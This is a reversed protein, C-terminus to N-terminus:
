AGAFDAVVVECAIGQPTNERWRVEGGLLKVRKRVGGLGLGHSWAQPERGIGDDVVALRLCRGRMSITIDVRRAQAHGIANSTLERLVRTLSSWQVMSLVMDRDVDLTWGLEVDAAALRQGLDAKWEAAAHTLRHETRALGRTLTKLDKLTHRVYEEMEPSQAQYMLTLLRAGIDDHLDQAIRLREENRGREVAQDYALARRLQEVIREALRADDRTFLRRGRRAYLLQLAPVPEVGDAVPRLPVVMSAGGDVVRAARVPEDAARVELPDFLDRLLRQLVAVEREPHAQLERVAGYLQEFTRDADQVHPGAGQREVWQRAAAHVAFGALLAPLLAATDQLGALSTLLAELSAAVAAAAAVLAIERLVARLRATAAALLLMAALLIRWLLEAAQMTAVSVESAGGSAGAAASVLLWTALLALVLRRALLVLPHPQHAYSTVLVATAALCALVVVARSSWWWWSAAGIDLALGVTLAVVGAWGALAIAHARPLRRPYNAFAHLAAAGTAADLLTRWPLVAAARVSAEAPGAAAQWGLLVLVAAQALAMAALLARAGRPEVRVFAALALLALAACGAGTALLGTM